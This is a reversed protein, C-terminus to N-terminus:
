NTRENEPDVNESAEDLGNSADERIENQADTVLTETREGAESLTESAAEALQATERDIARGAREASMDNDMWAYVAFGVIAVLAIAGAGGLGSFRSPHGDAHAVGRVGGFILSLVFLALFVWFLIIAIGTFASAIGGFGFVAAVVAALFFGIAWGLM